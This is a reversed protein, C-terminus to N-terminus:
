TAEHWEEQVDGSYKLFQMAHTFVAVTFCNTRFSVFFLFLVWLPRIIENLVGESVAKLVQLQDFLRDSKHPYVFECPYHWGTPLCSKFLFVLYLLLLSMLFHSIGLFTAIACKGLINVRDVYQDIFSCALYLCTFFCISSFLWRYNTLKVQEVWGSNNNIDGLAFWLFSSLLVFCM